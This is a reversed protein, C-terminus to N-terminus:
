RPAKRRMRLPGRWGSGPNGWIFYKQLHYLIVGMFYLNGYRYGGLNAAKAANQNMAGVAAQTFNDGGFCLVPKEFVDNM